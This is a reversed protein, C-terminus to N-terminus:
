CAHSVLASNVDDEDSDSLLAMPSFPENKSMAVSSPTAASSKPGNQRPTAAKSM